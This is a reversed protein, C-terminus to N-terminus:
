NNDVDFPCRLTLFNNNQKVKKSKFAHVTNFKGLRHAVYLLLGGGTVCACTAVVVRITKPDRFTVFSHRAVASNLKVQLMRNTFRGLTAMNVVRCYVKTILHQWSDDALLMATFNVHVGLSGDILACLHSILM